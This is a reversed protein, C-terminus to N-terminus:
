VNQERKYKKLNENRDLSAMLGGLVLWLIRANNLSIAMSGLLLVIIIDRLIFNVEANFLRSNTAKGLIFFVYSFLLVALPLGWETSVQLFTNHSIDSQNFLEIAINSYTGIGIGIIPSLQILSWAVKWTINRGSGNESFASSFDTFLVQVRAFAPISSSLVTVFNQLFSVMLPIFLILFIVLFIQTIVSLARKNKTFVYESVRLVLYCFLTLIGTKSGSILVASATIFLAIFKYKPKIHSARSIYVNASIQLVAFYNPDIMLGRYRTHEFFLIDSFIPINLVTWLLGLGGIVMGFISYWKITKEMLGVKLLNYGFIFYIFIAMLKIYESLLRTPVPNYMFHFPIYFVATVLVVMSVILFYLLPALPILLQNRYVLTVFIILCFLDSFSINVGFIVQSQHLLLALFLLAITILLNNNM